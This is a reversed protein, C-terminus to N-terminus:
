PRVEGFALLVPQRPQSMAAAVWHVSPDYIAFHTIRQSSLRGINLTTTTGDEYMITLNMM